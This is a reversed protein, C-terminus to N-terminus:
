FFQGMGFSFGNSAMHHIGIGYDIRLITKYFKKIHLRVGFGVQAKTEQFSFLNTISKGAPRLSGADLFVNSQVLFSQNQYLTHKYELNIFHIGTGRQIRNGIGRINLFGDLVFPSFPSDQNTSIGLVHRYSLNGKKKIYFHQITSLKALFFSAMPEQHTQITELYLSSKIGNLREFFYDMKKFKIASNIRYKFFTFNRQTFPIEVSDLQLYQEYIPTFGLEIQYKKNLTYKGNLWFAYNDFNFYSKKEHFYLPEITSYKSFVIDHGFNSNVYKPASYYISFSHRDYYQYWAGITKGEGKFNINNVGAELKFVNKFGGVIIIPFVYNAEEIVFSLIYSSDSQPILTSKSVVNFFLNLNRLQQVDHAILKEDLPMGPKCQIHSQLFAPNTKTLGEFVISDIIQAQLAQGLFMFILLLKHGM